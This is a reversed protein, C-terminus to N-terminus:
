IGNDELKEEKKTYSFTIQIITGRRSINQEIRSVELVKKLDKSEM